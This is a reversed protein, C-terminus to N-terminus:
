LRGRGTATTPLGTSNTNPDTTCRDIVGVGVGVAAVVLSRRVALPLHRPAIRHRTYGPEVVPASVLPRLLTLPLHRPYDPEVPPAVAHDHPSTKM